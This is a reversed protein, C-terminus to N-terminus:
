IPRIRSESSHSMDGRQPQTCCAFNLARGGDYPSTVKHLRDPSGVGVPKVTHSLVM